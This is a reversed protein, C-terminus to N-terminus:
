SPTRVWSRAGGKNTPTAGGRGRVMWAKAAPGKVGSEEVAAGRRCEELVIRRASKTGSILRPGPFRISHPVSGNEPIYNSM